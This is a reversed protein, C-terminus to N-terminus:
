FIEERGIKANSDGLMINTHYKLFNDFVRQLEEHGSGVMM